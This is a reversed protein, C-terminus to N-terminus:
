KLHEKAEIAGAIDIVDSPGHRLWAVIKAREEAAGEERHRQAVIRADAYIDKMVDCLARFIDDRDGKIYQAQPQPIGLVFWRRGGLNALELLKWDPPTDTM